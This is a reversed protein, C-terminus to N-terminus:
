GSIPGYDRMMQEADAIDQPTALDKWYGQLEVARGRLGEGLMMQVASTIEREGRSSVPVRGTYDFIRNSFCYMGAHSWPTSSTGVPPKEIIKQINWADDLYVAAARWPDGADRVAATLACGGASFAEAMALFNEPSTIIDAFALLVDAGAVAERTLELAHATGHQHEQYVFDLHLQDTRYGTLHSVVQESLYGTVIVVRKIGAAIVGDLVWEIAPRGLVPVLPKPLNRTLEGMRTGRGAALIVAVLNPQPPRKGSETGPKSM